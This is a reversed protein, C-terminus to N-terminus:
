ANICVAVKQALFIRVSGKLSNRPLSATFHTGQKNCLLQNLKAGIGLHSIFLLLFVFTQLLTSRPNFM